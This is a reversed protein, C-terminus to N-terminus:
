RTLKAAHRPERVWWRMLIFASLAIGSSVAFLLGYSVGALGAGILPAIVGVLGVGTNGIGVYTPIRQPECFEMVVLIASGMIASSAIGSLAFVGYYWEASAALWALGFGLASAAASIELCLKHGFRDALFGFALNAVTQGVLL